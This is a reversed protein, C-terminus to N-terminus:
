APIRYGGRRVTEIQADTGLKRRLRRVCVDVVNSRSDCGGAWVDSLINERSVTTGANRV